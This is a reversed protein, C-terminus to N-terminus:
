WCADRSTLVATVSGATSSSTSPGVVGQALRFVLVPRARMGAVVPATLMEDMRM